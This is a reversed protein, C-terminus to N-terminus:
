PIDALLAEVHTMGAATVGLVSCAKRAAGRLAEHEHQVEHVDAENMGESKCAARFLDNAEDPTWYDGLTVNPPVPHGPRGDALSGVFSVKVRSYNAILKLIRVAEEHSM